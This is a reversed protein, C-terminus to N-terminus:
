LESVLHRRKGKFSLGLAACEGRVGEEQVFRIRRAMSTVGWASIVWHNKKEGGGEGREM